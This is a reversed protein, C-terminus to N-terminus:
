LPDKQLLGEQLLGEKILTKVTLTEPYSIMLHIAFKDKETKRELFENLSVM